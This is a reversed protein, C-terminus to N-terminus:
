GQTLCNQIPSLGHKYVSKGAVMGKVSDVGLSGGMTWVGLPPVCRDRM